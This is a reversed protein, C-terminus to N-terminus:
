FDEIACLALLWNLFVVAWNLWPAFSFIIEFDITESNFIIKQRLPFKHKIVGWLWKEGQNEAESHSALVMNTGIQRLALWSLWLIVYNVTCCDIPNQM